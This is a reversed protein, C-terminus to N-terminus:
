GLVVFFKVDVFAHLVTRFAKVLVVQSESAFSTVRGADAAICSREVAL